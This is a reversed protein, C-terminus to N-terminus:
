FEKAYEGNEEKYLEYMGIDPDLYSSILTTQILTEKYRSLTEGSKERAVVKIAKNLQVTTGTSYHYLLRKWQDIIFM